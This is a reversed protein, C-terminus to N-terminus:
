FVSILSTAKETSVFALFFLVVWSSVLTGFSNNIISFSWGWLDLEGGRRVGTPGSPVLPYLIYLATALTELPPSPPFNIKGVNDAGQNRCQGPLAQSVISWWLHFFYIVQRYCLLIKSPPEIYILIKSKMLILSKRSEKCWSFIVHTCSVDTSSNLERWRCRRNVRDFYYLFIM